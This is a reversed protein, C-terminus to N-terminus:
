YKSLQHGDIFWNPINYLDRLCYELYGLIDSIATYSYKGLEHLYQLRKIHV